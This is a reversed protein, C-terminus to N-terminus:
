PSPSTWEETKLKPVHHMELSSYGLGLSDMSQRGSCTRLPFLCSSLHILASQLPLQQHSPSPWGSEGHPQDGGGAATTPWRSVAANVRMISGRGEGRGGLFGHATGRGCPAKATGLSAPLPLSAPSTHPGPCVQRSDPRGSGVLHVKTM